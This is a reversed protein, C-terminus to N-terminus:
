NMSVRDNNKNKNKKQFFNYRYQDELERKCDDCFYSIYGTSYYTAPAGCRCCIDKSKKEHEHIIDSTCIMNDYWCLMGYKEKADHVYYESIPIGEKNLVEKIEYCLHLVLGKWGVPLYDIWTFESDGVKLFPYIEILEKNTM